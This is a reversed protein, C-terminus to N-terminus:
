AGEEVAKVRWSNAKRFLPLFLIAVALVLMTASM